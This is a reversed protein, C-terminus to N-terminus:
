LWAPKRGQCYEESQNFTVTQSSTERVANDLNGSLMWKVIQKGSLMEHCNEGSQRFAEQQISTCCMEETAHILLIRGSLMERVTARVSYLTHWIAIIEQCLTRRNVCDELWAPGKGCWAPRVTLLIIFCFILFCTSSTKLTIYVVYLRSRTHLKHTTRDTYPWATNDPKRLAQKCKAQM